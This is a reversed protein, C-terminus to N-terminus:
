RAPTVGAASSRSTRRLASERRVQALRAHWSESELIQDVNIRDHRDKYARASSLISEPHPDCPVAAGFRSLWSTTPVDAYCLVHLGRELMSVTKYPFSFRAYEGDLLIVGLVTRTRPVYASLDQTLVRTRESDVGARAIAREVFPLERERVVMDLFFDPEKQLEAVASLFMDQRYFDNMGGAYLLTLGRKRGSLREVQCVNHPHLGPPLTLWTATSIGHPALLKGFELRSSESPAYLVDSVDRVQRLEYLGREIQEQTPHFGEVDEEALWHLDRVFWATAASQEALWRFCSATRDILDLSPMPGTSNEGYVLRPQWGHEVLDSILRGRRDLLNHSPMLVITPGDSRMTEFMNRLRQLRAGDARNEVPSVTYFVDFEQPHTEDFLDEHYWPVDRGALSAFWSPLSPQATRHLAQSSRGRARRLRAVSRQLAGTSWSLVRHRSAVRTWVRSARAVPRRERLRWEGLIEELLPVLATGRAVRVGAMHRALDTAALTGDLLLRNAQMGLLPAIAVVDRHEGVIVSHTFAGLRDRLADALDVDSRLHDENYLTGVRMFEAPAGYRRCAALLARVRADKRKVDRGGLIVVRPAGSTLVERSSCALLPLRFHPVRSGAFAAHLMDSSTVFVLEAAAGAVFDIAKRSGSTVPDLDVHTVLPTIRTDPFLQAACVSAALGVAIVRGVNLEDVLRGLHRSLVFTRREKPLLALWEPIDEHRPHLMTRSASSFIVVEEGAARYASALAGEIAGVRSVVLLTVM